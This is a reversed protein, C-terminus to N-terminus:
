TRWTCILKACTPSAAPIRRFKAFMLTSPMAGSAIRRSAGSARDIVWYDGKRAYTPTDSAWNRISGTFLLVKRGDPSWEYSEIPVKSDIKEDCQGNQSHCVLIKTDDQPQLVSFHASDPLWRFNSPEVPDFEKNEFIRKLESQFQPYRQAPVPTFTGGVIILTALLLLKAMPHPNAKETPVM